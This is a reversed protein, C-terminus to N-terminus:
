GLGTIRLASPQLKRDIKVRIVGEPAGAGQLERRRKVSDHANQLMERVFVDAEAYLNKALLKILGQLDIQFESSSPINDAPQPEQDPQAPKRSM